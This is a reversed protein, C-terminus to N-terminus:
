RWELIKKEVREKLGEDEGKKDFEIAKKWYEIAKDKVNM